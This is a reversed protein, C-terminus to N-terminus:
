KIRKIIKDINKFYQDFMELQDNPVDYKMKIVQDFIGTETLLNLSKGEEVFNKAKQYLYLIVEMMHNQKELPVYTDDKHFANQQLYGHRIVKGIEIVLKQDDPLVDAGILKVIELLKNEEALLSMIGKRNQLFSSGVNQDYWKSLDLVYESYSTNWNIAAYHRAYALQKDLAWFSRVFRKTNQTV